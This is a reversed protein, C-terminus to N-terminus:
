FTWGFANSLGLENKRANVPPLSDFTDWISFRLYLDHAFKFSFSTNLNTRVRGLDTFSPYVQLSSQVEAKSFRFWDFGVALLGEASKNRPTLGSSPNYSEKTYVVGGLWTLNTTNSRILYRGYGGGLTTRLNLSQQTSTLFDVESGIFARRSLYLQSTSEGEIRTTKGTTGTSTFASNFSTGVQFRTSPYTADAGLNAQTQGSGSAYGLGLDISGKLQRWFNEKQSQIGVVHSSILRTESGDAGRLVFDGETAEPASSKAITGVLHQGADLEVQYTATSELRDVQLWDVPIPDVAYPTEIYLQGRQLKRIKGTLQDGNKMVVVDRRQALLPSGNFAMICLIVSARRFIHPASATVTAVAREFFGTNM